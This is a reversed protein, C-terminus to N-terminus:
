TRRLSRLLAYDNQLEDNLKNMDRKVEDISEILADKWQVITKSTQSSNKDEEPRSTEM